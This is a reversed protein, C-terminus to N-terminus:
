KNYGLKVPGSSHLKTSISAGNQTWVEVWVAAGSEIYGRWTGCSDNNAGDADQITTSGPYSYPGEWWFRAVVRRVDAVRDCVTLKEGNLLDTWWASGRPTGYYSSSTHVIPGAASAPAAGSVLVAAVILAALSASMRRWKRQRSFLTSKRRTSGM